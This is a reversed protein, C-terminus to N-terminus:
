KTFFFASALKLTMANKCHVGLKIKSYYGIVTTIIVNYSM